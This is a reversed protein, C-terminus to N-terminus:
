PSVRTFKQEDEAGEALLNLQDGALRFKRKSPPQGEFEKALYEAELTYRGKATKMPVSLQALGGTTYQWTAMVGTYHKFTWLGVIPPAGPKARGVRTPEQRKEPDAPNVILKEGVIEYPEVTEETKRSEKDTSTTRLTQGEVRYRFDVLAGFTQIVSDDRAFEFMAGLGGQTRSEAAWKGVIQNEAAGSLGTSLAVLPVWLLKRKM